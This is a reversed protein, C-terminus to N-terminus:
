AKQEKAANARNQLVDAVISLTICLFIVSLLIVCVYIAPVHFFKGLILKIGIFVLIFSLGYKLLTFYRVLEDIVFFMARLGFMAFVTSTYAMYMDPIQAVKASVSDVAFILDTLELIVVVVFLLTGKTAITKATSNQVSGYETDQPVENGKDDVPVQVFFNGKDDYRPVIPIFSLCWKVLPIQSPDEDDEEVMATKFGTYILFAGFIIHVFAVWHMLMEFTFFFIVRFVIAGVIGWFLPKHKFAEPTKYMSFVMHFVFLNDMSLLYELLYGNMWDVASNFDYQFYVYINFALGCVVWFGMMFCAHRFTIAKRDRHLICNDVLMLVVVVAAFVVWGTRDKEKFFTPAHHVTHAPQEFIDRQLRQDLSDAFLSAGNHLMFDWM